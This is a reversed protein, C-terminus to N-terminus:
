KGILRNKLKERRAPNTTIPTLLRFFLEREKQRGIKRRESDIMFQWERHQQIIRSFVELGRGRVDEDGIREGWAVLWSAVTAVRHPNTEIDSDVLSNFNGLSSAKDLREGRGARSLQLEVGILPKTPHDNPLSDYTSSLIREGQLILSKAGGTGYYLVSAAFLTKAEDRAMEPLFDHRRGKHDQVVGRLEERLTKSRYVTVITKTAEELPPLARSPLKAQNAVTKLADVHIRALCALIARQEPDHALQSVEEDTLPLSTLGLGIAALEAAM